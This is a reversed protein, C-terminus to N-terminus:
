RPEVRQIPAVRSRAYADTLQDRQTPNLVSQLAQWRAMMDELARLRDTASELEANLEQTVDARASVLPRSRGIVVWMRRENLSVLDKLERMWADFAQAQEPELAMAGRTATLQEHWRQLPDPPILEELSPMKMPPLQPMGRPPAGGPSPRGGGPPLQAQALGVLLLASLVWAAHIPRMPAAGQGGRVM